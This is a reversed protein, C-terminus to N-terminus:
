HRRSVGRDLLRAHVARAGAARDAADRRHRGQSRHYDAVRARLGLRLVPDLPAGEEGRLRAAPPVEDARPDGVDLQAQVDRHARGVIETRMGCIWRAGWLVIACWAAAVRYRAIRPLWFTLLM